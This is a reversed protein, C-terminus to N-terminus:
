EPWSSVVFNAGSGPSLWEETPGRTLRRPQRALAVVACVAGILTFVAYLPAISIRRARLVGERRVTSFRQWGVILSLLGSCALAITVGVDLVLLSSTLGNLTAFSFITRIVALGTRVWALLTRENALDTNISKGDPLDEAELFAARCCSYSGAEDQQRQPVSAFASSPGSIAAAASSSASASCTAVTESFVLRLRTGDPLKATLPVVDDGPVGGEGTEAVFFFARGSTLGLRDRVCALLDAAPVDASPVALRFSSLRPGALGAAAEEWHIHFTRSM